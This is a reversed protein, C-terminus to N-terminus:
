EREFSCTEIGFITRNISPPATKIPLNTTGNWNWLHHSQYNVFDTSVQTPLVTEIGFITRNITTYRLVILHNQQTEIGFITRNIATAFRIGKVKSGQKLELSPAISLTICMAIIDWTKPKLELSPAISLRPPPVMNLSSNQKLELSPAISLTVAWSSVKVFIANWNWLHHSQYCNVPIRSNIHM